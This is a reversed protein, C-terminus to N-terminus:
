LYIPIVVKVRVFKGNHEGPSWKGCSQIADRIKNTLDVEIKPAVVNIRTPNGDKEVVMEVFLKTLDKKLKTPIKYEGFKQYFSEMGSPFTPMKHVSIFVLSDQEDSSNAPLLATTDKALLSDINGIKSIFGSIIPTKDIFTFNYVSDKNPGLAIINKEWDGNLKKISACGNLLISAGITEKFAKIILSDSSYNMSREDLQYLWMSNNAFKSNSQIKSTLDNILYDVEKQRSTDSKTYWQTDKLNILISLVETLGVRIIANENKYAIISQDDSKKLDIVQEQSYSQFCTLTLICGLIIKTRM